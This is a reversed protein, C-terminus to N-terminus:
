STKCLSLDKTPGHLCAQRGICEALRAPSTGEVVALIRTVLPHVQNPSTHTEFVRRGFLIAWLIKLIHRSSRTGNYIWLWARTRFILLKWKCFCKQHEGAAKLTATWRCSMRIGRVNQWSTKQDMGQRQCFVVARNEWTFLLFFLLQPRFSQLHCIWDGARSSGWSVYLIIYLIKKPLGSHTLIFVLLKSNGVHKGRSILRLAVQIDVWSDDYFATFCQKDTMLSPQVQGKHVGTCSTAEKCWSLGPLQMMHSRKEVTWSWSFSDFLNRPIKRSVRRLSSSRSAWRFRQAFEVSEVARDISGEGWGDRQVQGDSVSPDVWPVKVSRVAAM